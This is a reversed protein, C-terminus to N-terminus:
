IRVYQHHLAALVPIGIIRGFRQVSPKKPADKYLASHTRAQNYNAAYASLIREPSGGRWLNHHSRPVRPAAYRDFTGSLWKPMAIESYDASRPYDRSLPCEATCLVHGSQALLPCQEPPPM